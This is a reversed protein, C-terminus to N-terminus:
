ERFRSRAPTSSRQSQSTGPRSDMASPPPQTQMSPPGGRPPGSPPPAARPPGSPPPGATPPGTRQPPAQTAPQGYIPPQGPQAYNPTAAAPSYPNPAVNRMPPPVGPGPTPTSGPAPAYRNSPAGTAAAPPPQYPSAGRNVPPPAPTPLTSGTSPQASPPPAYANAASSSPRSNLQPPGALPSTVRAPMEGKRPPPPLPAHSPRPQTYSPASSLPPPSMVNPQNPFPSGVIPAPGPTGRRSTPQGKFFDAPMDNWDTMSKAASPPPAAPGNTSGRQPPPALSPPQSSQTPANYGTSYQSNQMYPGAQYSNTPPAYANSKPPVYPTRANPASPTPAMPNPPAYQSTASIPTVSSPPQVPMFPTAPPQARPAARAAAAPQKQAAKKTALKVRQQAAEAGSYKTPVMDLYKEAEQLRGHAALIDAYETYKAYLPALKWYAPLTKEADQFGTVERFVTVKEIFDQLSRAHVAFSSDDDAAELSTQEQEQLEQVWIAVVKELRSGALYCFSADRRLSSDGEKGELAEELRDGLAECLDSFEKEDAYTCVTAMTEKWNSIDANHVMDWLNNGVISALLRLYNPGHAQKKLYAKQAKDICKQGGCVAIMFADSMRDESLALDTARSFDGLMLARTIGKEAESEKGTYIHFPNNTKAGKTAALDALFNDDDEGNGFFDDDKAGNTEPEDKAADGNIGMMATKASMDDVEDEFGLYQRLKKRSKGTNLTEIVQWDAKEEETKAEKIKTECLSGLDGSKVKSEFEQAAEGIASDVSFTEISISSKKSTADTTLRVLKGGFGFSAGVPRQMSKPAKPLSFSSTQPQNQAKAFFDEGDLAQSAASKDEAKANTNQVTQVSIKGDFSATALLSPNHPNWRTSFTWNTVVPLEGYMAGTRPNWCINRNDKGCSLLLEPDQTCWSLGLVGLEHGSLTREPASANRLDYVHILPDSDSPTATILKTQAEPDWAVASVPKRSQNTLTFSEKKSAVDWVTVLGGSSGVALIKPIKKNWDLCEIDDARAATAGLRQAKQPESIDTIYLEGRAGGTALVNNRSASFQLAKIASSHKSIRSLHANALDSRLKEADWLDLSGSELAGAIVGRPHSDDPQNWAIDNFRREIM